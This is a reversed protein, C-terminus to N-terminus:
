SSTGFQFRLNAAEKANLQFMFDGPFRARNRAVAKNLNKTEVGYLRALDADLMVRQGRIVHICREVIELPVVAVKFRMLTHVCISQSAHPPPAPRTLRIRTPADLCAPRPL